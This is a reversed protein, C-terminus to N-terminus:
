VVVAGNATDLNFAGVPLAEVLGRRVDDRRHGQRVEDLAQARRRRRAHLLCGEAELVTIEDRHREHDIPGVQERVVPDVNM